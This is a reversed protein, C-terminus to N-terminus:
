AHDSVGHLLSSASLLENDNNAGFLLDDGDQGFLLDDGLTGAMQDDPGGSLRDDSNRDKGSFGFTDDACTPRNTVSTGVLNNDRLTGTIPAM